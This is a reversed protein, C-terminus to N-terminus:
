IVIMAKIGTLADADDFFEAAGMSPTEMDQNDAIVVCYGLL